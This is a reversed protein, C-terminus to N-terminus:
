KKKNENYLEKIKQYTMVPIGHKSRIEAKQDKSLDRWYRLIETM